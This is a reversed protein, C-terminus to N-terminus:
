RQLWAEATKQYHCGNVACEQELVLSGSFHDLLGLSPMTGGTFFEREMWDWPSDSPDFTYAWQRHAFVHTFLKGSPRLASHLLEFVSAYNRVHELMEISLIRDFANEPLELQNIDCTRIELNPLGQSLIFQRQSHSNSIGVIQCNPFRRALFLSLSGWGCGLDLIRQGDEVQARELYLELMAAEAQALDSCGESFLACSYKLNPGLVLEYFRAPVEYHQQNAELTALARPSRRMQERLLSQRAVAAELGSAELQRLRQRNLQRIGLRLLRDGPWVYELLKLLTTM